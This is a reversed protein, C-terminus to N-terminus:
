QYTIRLGYMYHFSEFGSLYLQEKTGMFIMIVFNWQIRKNIIKGLNKHAEVLKLQNRHLECM